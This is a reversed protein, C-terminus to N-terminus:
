TSGGGQITQQRRPALSAYSVADSLADYSFGEFRYAGDDFRIGLTTMLADEADTTPASPKRAQFPGGPDLQGPRSRVLGAYAVADQWSDYRYGNCYYRTGDCSVSFEAMQRERESQAPQPRDGEPRFADEATACLREDTTKRHRQTM